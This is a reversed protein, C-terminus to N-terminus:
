SKCIWTYRLKLLTNNPKEEKNQRKKSTEIYQCYAIPQGKQLVATRINKWSTDVALTAPKSDDYLGLLISVPVHLAEENVNLTSKNPNVHQSYVWKILIM